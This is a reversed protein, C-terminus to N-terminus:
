NGTTQQPTDLPLFLSELFTKAPLLTHVEELRFAAILAIMLAVIGTVFCPLFYPYEKFFPYHFFRPFQAAPDALAGGILPRFPL